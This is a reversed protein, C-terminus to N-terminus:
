IPVKIPQSPNLTRRSGAEDLWPATMLESERV